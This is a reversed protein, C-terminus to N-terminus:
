NSAEHVKWKGKLNVKPYVIKAVATQYKGDLYHEEWLDPSEEGEGHLTFLVYPFEVSLKCMDETFHYWKSNFNGDEFEMEELKKEIEGVVDLEIPFGNVEKYSVTFNTYYGM